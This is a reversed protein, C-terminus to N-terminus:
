PTKSGWLLPKVKEPLFDAALLTTDRVGTHATHVSVTDQTNEGTRNRGVTKTSREAETWPEAQGKSMEDEVAKPHAMM